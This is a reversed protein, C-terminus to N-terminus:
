RDSTYAESAPKWFALAVSSPEITVIQPWHLNQRLGSILARVVQREEQRLKASVPNSKKLGDDRMCEVESSIMM